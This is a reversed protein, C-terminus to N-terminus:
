NQLYDDEKDIEKDEDPEKPEFGKLLSPARNVNQKALSSRQRDFLHTYTDLTFSPNAHGLRAAVELATKGEILILHSAHYHRLDHFRAHPLIVKQELKKKAKELEPTSVMSELELLWRERTLNQLAQYDRLLNRPRRPTGKANRFILDDEETEERLPELVALVDEAIDITRVSNATKPESFSIHGESEILNQRVTLFHGTLDSWRLALVEGRRLGTSMTLYFLPYLKSTKATELFRYAEEPNWIVMDQQEEQLKKIAKCPNRIILELAVADNFLMSLYRKARNARKVGYEKALQTVFSQIHRPTVKDLQLHGLKISAFGELEYRYDRLTQAKVRLAKENLWQGIFDELLPADPSIGLSYDQRAKSLKDFVEKQTAGYFTKRKRKGNEYGLTLKAEWRIFTSGDKRTVERSYVTGEGNARAKRKNKRKPMKM